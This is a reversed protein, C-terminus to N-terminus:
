WIIAQFDWRAGWYHGNILRSTGRSTGCVPVGDRPSNQTVDSLYNRLTPLWAHRKKNRHALTVLRLLRGKCIPLSPTIPELQGCVNVSLLACMQNGEPTSSGCSSVHLIVFNTSKGGGEKTKLYRFNLHQRLESVVKLTRLKRTRMILFVHALDNLSTVRLRSFLAFM